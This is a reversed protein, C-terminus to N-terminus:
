RNHETTILIHECPSEKHNGNLKKNYRKSPNLIEDRLRFHPSYEIKNVVEQPTSKNISLNRM